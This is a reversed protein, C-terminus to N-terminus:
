LKIQVQKRYLLLVSTINVAMYAILIQLARLQNVHLTRVLMNIGGTTLNSLLFFLLGNYNVAEFIEITNKIVNRENGDSVSERKSKVNMRHTRTRRETHETDTTAHILIDSLIEILLLLTLIMVGLTLIWMCYGANALRRSVRFYSDCFLTAACTQASILSLKICLIMSENYSADFEYGFLKIHFTKHRHQLSNQAYSNQYTSHILRGVAVGILYLGVYGPVSVVGERNASVFDNRPRNSLVWEKLGKTSLIYEHMGLIWIGSLLSYKSNITSTISSTFLKVFALTIFFNWHIGYETVHKQYGLVEIAVSRGFGLILLPICSRASHKINRSITLFFGIRSRPAFDKAEPAVLANALIFLGVGTDMLSYGFVETKAFKRPFIHFDIALICIATIISILARFNTIFPRKGCASKINYTSLTNSNLGLLLINIISIVMMACCVTIIYESLITCCLISPIVILAFELVVRINKHIVRGLLGMTTTTLLISCINPMIAYIVERSTTGGHGSVFAEQEQRYINKNWVNSM